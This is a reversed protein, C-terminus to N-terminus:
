KNIPMVLYLFSNDGLGRLLMPKNEGNFQMSVSDEKIFQLCDLIYKHNFSIELRDGSLAADIKTTNEGIEANQTNIEFIKDSPHILFNTKHFKDSFINSVKLASALDQKLVIVETTHKKPIIQKYDPFVGNVIRSTLYVGDFYMSLQNKNAHITVDADINEIIRAIEHVNKLPIITPPIEKTKKNQIKKEALRFSDTAAFISHENDSYIYVSSIEPKIDSVSASFIVSKIGESLKKAPIVIADGEKVIPLTPFDDPQYSKITISSNETSLFLNNNILDFSINKTNQLSSLTNSFISGPVSILGKKEIKAPIEFEVGVDLNTARVKLSNGETSLLISQLIPLNQTKSTIKEALSVARQLKEKVCVLKM